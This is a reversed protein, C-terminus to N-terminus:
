PTDPGFHTLSGNFFEPFVGGVFILAAALGLLVLAFRWPTTPVINDANEPSVVTAFSQRVLTSPM